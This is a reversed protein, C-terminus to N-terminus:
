CLCDGMAINAENQLKNLFVLSIYSMIKYFITLTNEEKNFGTHMGILLEKTKSCNCIPLFTYLNYTIKISIKYLNYNANELKM